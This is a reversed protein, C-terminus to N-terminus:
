RGGVTAALRATQADNTADSSSCCTADNQEANTIARDFLALVEAHTRGPTDHWESLSRGGAPVAARLYSLAAIKLPAHLEQPQPQIYVAGIADWRTAWRSHTSCVQGLINRALACQTWRRPTAIQSKAHRLLRSPTM